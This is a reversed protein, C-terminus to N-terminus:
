INVEIIEPGRRPQEEEDFELNTLDIEIDEIDADIKSLERNENDRVHAVYSHIIQRILLNLGLTGQSQSMERLFKYDDAWLRVCIRSLARDDNLIKPM